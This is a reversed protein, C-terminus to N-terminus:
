YSEQIEKRLNLFENTEKIEKKRPYEFPVKMIKQIKSPVSDLVFIKGSLYIAETVDHTVIIITQESKSFIGLLEDYLKEKTSYDLSAFPEDMIIAEGKGALARAISLKEKMGGSLDNPYMATFEFLDTLKLYKEIEAENTNVIKMNEYVTMWEFLDNEQSIVIRDRGPGKIEEKNVLIEGSSPEIYGALLNVLTTKGCGSPGVISVIEGKKISLDVEKLVFPQDMNSPKSYAFSVNKIEIMDNKGGHCQYIAVCCM